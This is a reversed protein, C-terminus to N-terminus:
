STPPRHVTALSAAPPQDWRAGLEVPQRVNSLHLDDIDRGVLQGRILMEEVLDCKAIKGGPLAAVAHLRVSCLAILLPSDAGGLVVSTVHRIRDLVASDGGEESEGAALGHTPAVVTIGRVQVAHHAAELELRGVM